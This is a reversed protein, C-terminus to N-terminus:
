MIFVNEELYVVALPRGSSTQMEDPRDALKKCALVHSWIQSWATEM